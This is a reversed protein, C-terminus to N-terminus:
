VLKIVQELEVASLKPVVSSASPYDQRVGPAPTCRGHAERREQHTETRTKLWADVRKPLAKSGAQKARHLKERLHDPAIREFTRSRARCRNRVRGRRGSPTRAIGSWLGAPSTRLNQYGAVVCM